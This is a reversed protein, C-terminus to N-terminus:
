VMRFALGGTGHRWHAPNLTECLVAESRKTASCVSEASVAWPRWQPGHGLAQWLAQRTAPLCCACFNIVSHISTETERIRKMTVSYNDSPSHPINWLTGSCDQHFLEWDIGQNTDVGGIGERVAPCGKGGGEHITEQLWERMWLEEKGQPVRWIKSSKFCCFFILFIM